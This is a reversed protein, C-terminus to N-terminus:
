AKTPVLNLEEKFGFGQSNDTLRIWNPVLKWLKSSAMAKLLEAPSGSTVMPVFSYKKTYVSAAHPFELLTVPSAEGKLQLGSLSKWEQHESYATAAVGPHDLLNVGHVTEKSSIFYLNLKSDHAYYVAAACPEGERNVTALTVTTLSELRESIKQRLAHEEDQM